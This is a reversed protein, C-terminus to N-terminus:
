GRCVSLVVVLLVPSRVNYALTVGGRGGCDEVVSDKALKDRGWLAVILRGAQFFALTPRTTSGGGLEWCLAEYFGRARSVDAVGLTIL